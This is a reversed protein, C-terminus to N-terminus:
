CKEVNDIKIKYFIDRNPCLHMMQYFSNKQHSLQPNHIHLPPPQQRGRTTHNISHRSNGGEPPPNISHRSNGGEPSTISSTRWRAAVGRLTTAAPPSNTVDRTCQADPHDAFRRRTCIGNRVIRQSAPRQAHSKSKWAGPCYKLRTSTGQVGQPYGRASRRDSRAM